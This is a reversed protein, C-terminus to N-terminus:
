QRCWSLLSRPLWTARGAAASSPFRAAGIALSLASLPVLVLLEGGVGDWGSGGLLPERMGEIAIAIPNLRAADQGWQPLLELPFFAGSFLTLLTVM